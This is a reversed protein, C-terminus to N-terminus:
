KQNKAMESEYWEQHHHEAWDSKVTGKWMGWFSEGSGPHFSGLYGHMCVMTTAIIAFVDHIYYSWLVLGAPFIAGAWMIYGSIGVLICSTTIVCSNMKEGGNFQSQPPFKMDFGLFDFPFIALFPLDRKISFSLVDKWWDILGRPNMCIAIIPVITFGVAMWRHLSGAFRAGGINSLDLFLMLGTFLLVIFTVTHGWHAFRAAFSFREIRPVDPEYKSLWQM